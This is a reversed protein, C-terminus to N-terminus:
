FLTWDARGERGAGGPRVCVVLSSQKVQLKQPSSGYPTYLLSRGAEADGHEQWTTLLKAFGTALLTEMRRWGAQVCSYPPLVANTWKWGSVSRAIKTCRKVQLTKPTIDETSTISENCYNLSKDATTGELPRM